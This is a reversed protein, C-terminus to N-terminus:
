LDAVLAALEPVADIKNFVLVQRITDAGIEHLVDFPLVPTKRGAKRDAKLQAALALTDDLEEHSLDLVSLFDKARMARGIGRASIREVKTVPLASVKASQLGPVRNKM